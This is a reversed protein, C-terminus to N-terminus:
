YVKAQFSEIMMFGYQTLGNGFLFDSTWRKTYSFVNMSGNTSDPGPILKLAQIFSPNHGNILYSIQYFLTEQIADM